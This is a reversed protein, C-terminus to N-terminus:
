KVITIIGEKLAKLYALEMEIIKEGIEDEKKVHEVIEALGIPEQALNGISLKINDPLKSSVIRQIILEKLEPDLKKKEEM